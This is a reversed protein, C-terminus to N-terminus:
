RQTSGHFSILIIGVVIFVGGLSFLIWRVVDFNVFEEFYIGGGVINLTIYCATIVPMAYLINYKKLATNYRYVWISGFFIFFVGLIYPYPKNFQNNGLITDRLMLSMSKGLIPTQVGVISSTFCFIFPLYIKCFREFRTEETNYDQSLAYSLSIRPDDLNISDSEYGGDRVHNNYISTVKKTYFSFICHYSTELLIGLGFLASIWVVFPINKLFEILQHSTLLPSKHDGVIGIMITGILISISGFVAQKTIKEKLMLKAFILNSIFQISAVAALISQATYAFSIFDLSIGLVFLMWGAFFIIWSRKKERSDYVSQNNTLTHSYKVVNTGFNNIIQGIFTVAVGILWCHECPAFTSIPTTTSM